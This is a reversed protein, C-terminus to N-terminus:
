SSGSKPIQPVRHFTTTSPTSALQFQPIKLPTRPRPNGSNRISPQSATGSIRCGQRANGPRCSRPIFRWRPFIMQGMLVPIRSLTVSAAPLDLRNRVDQQILAQADAEIDRDSLYSLTLDLRDSPRTALQYNVFQAPPPLYLGAFARDIREFLNTQLQTVSAPLPPLETLTRSKM